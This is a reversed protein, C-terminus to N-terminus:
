LRKAAVDNADDTDSLAKAKASYKIGHTLRSLDRMAVAEDQLAATLQSALAAEAATREAQAALKKEQEIQRLRDREAKNAARINSASNDAATAAAVRAEYEALSTHAESFLEPHERWNNVLKTAAGLIARSNIATNAM